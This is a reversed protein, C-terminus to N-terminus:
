KNLIEILTEEIAKDRLDRAVITGDADILIIQPIANFGYQTSANRTTDILQPYQIGLDSVAQAHKEIKDWVDVGVVVVGKKSYRAYIDNLNNRIEQKCPGCWSAWFDVIAVKGNIITSLNTTNGTSFDIGQLDVFHQGASTAAAHHIMEAYEALPKYQKVPTSANNLISDVQETSFKGLQVVELLMAAGFENDLNTNYIDMALHYLCQNSLNEVSDYQAEILPRDQPSAALYQNYLEQLQNSYQLMEENNRFANFQDNLPTGSLIDTQGISITITGPELVLTAFYSPRGDENDVSNITVMRITDCTGSFSFSGNVVTTSDLIQEPNNYVSLYVKFGECEAPLTGNITYSKNNCSTLTIVLTALIFLIRKM